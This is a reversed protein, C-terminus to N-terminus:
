EEDKKRKSLIFLLSIVVAALLGVWIFISSGGEEPPQETTPVSSSEIVVEPPYVAVQIPVSTIITIYGGQVLATTKTLEGDVVLWIVVEQGNYSADVPIRIEAEGDYGDVSIDYFEILNEKGRIEDYVDGELDECGTEVIIVADPDFDGTIEIGTEEDVITVGESSSEPRSTPPYYPTSSSSPTSSPTPNPTPTSTLPYVGALNPNNLIAGTSVDTITGRLLNPTQYNLGGYGYRRLNLVTTTTGNFTFTGSNGHPHIGTAGGGGGIDYASDLMNGSCIGATANVTGSTTITINGGSGGGGGGIGAGGTNGNGGIATVNAAGAINITGTGVVTLGGGIGAGDGGSIATLSGTGAITVGSGLPVGLGAYSYGSKLTNTGVLVITANLANVMLATFDVGTAEISVNNLTVVANSSIEINNTTSTTIGNMGITYSGIGLIELTFVGFANAYYDYDVGAVPLGGSTFAITFDGVPVYPLVVPPYVGSYNVPVIALATPNSADYVTGCTLTPVTISGGGYGHSQMYIVADASNGSASNLVLTGSSATSTRGGSGIDPANFSPVTSITGGTAYVTGGTVTVDAGAGSAGGGIGAGANLGIGPAGSGTAHVVGGSINVIGGTGGDGGGIGAGGGVGAAETATATVNGGTITVTGGNGGRIDPPAFPGAINGRQGGGIGAGSYGGTAVVTGGTITVSAGNGGFGGGIGAGEGIATATVTGNTIVVDIGDTYAGGGIGAGHVANTNVTGDNITISTPSDSVGGEGNGGGIGAGWAGATATITGSNITIAGGYFGKAGGIGAGGNGGTTNLSGTGGLNVSANTNVQLGAAGTGSKVTNAGTLLITANTATVEIAAANTTASVDININNLTVTANAAIVIKDVTTQTVGNMSITYTGTGIITLVNGTYTYDVGSVPDPLAGGTFEINFHGLPVMLPMIPLLGNIGLAWENEEDLSSSEEESSSSSSEETSSIQSSEDEPTSTTLSSEETSSTEETTTIVESSTEEPSSIVEAIAGSFFTVGNLMLTFALVFSLVKHSISRRKKM